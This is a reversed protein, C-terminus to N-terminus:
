RPRDEDVHALARVLGLTRGADSRLMAAELRTIAPPRVGREICLEYWEAWREVGDPVLDALEVVFGAREWHQQWWDPSHLVPFTGRWSPSYYDPAYSIERVLGESVMGIRGGPRVFKSLVTLFMNDTAFYQFAGIGVVADFYRSPFPLRRADGHLPIVRDVMGYAEVNAFIEDPRILTDVAYVTVGYERALFISSGGRGCGVDLVRMGPEFGMVDALSETMWAVNAVTSVRLLWDTDYADARM